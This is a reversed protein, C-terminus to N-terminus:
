LGAAAQPPSEKQGREANRKLREIQQEVERVKPIGELVNATSILRRRTAVVLPGGMSLHLDGSGDTREVRRVVSVKDLDFSSVQRPQGEIVLIRENTLAYVRTRRRRAQRFPQILVFLGVLVFPVGFLPFLRAPFDEGDTAVFVASMWFVAFGIFVLAFLTGPLARRFGGTAIPREAWVLREGRHMESQAISLAPANVPDLEALTM